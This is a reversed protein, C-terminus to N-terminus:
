QSPLVQTLQCIGSIVTGETDLDLDPDIQGKSDSPYILASCDGAFRDQKQTGVELMFSISGVTAHNSSSFVLPSSSGQGVDLDFIIQNLSPNRTYTGVRIWQNSALPLPQNDEVSTTSPKELFNMMVAGQGDPLPEIQFVLTASDIDLTGLDRGSLTSPPCFTAKLAWYKNEFVTKDIQPQFIPNSQPAYLTDLTPVQCELDDLEVYDCGGLGLFCLCNFLFYVRVMFRHTYLKSKTQPGEQSPNQNFDLPKLQLQTVM